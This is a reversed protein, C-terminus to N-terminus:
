RHRIQQAVLYVFCLICLLLFLAMGLHLGMRHYLGRVRDQLLNELINSVGQATVRLTNLMHVQALVLDQDVAIRRSEGVDVSLRAARRFSEVNELLEQIQEGQQTRLSPHAAVAEAWDSRVGQLVGDLQGELVLYQMKRSLPASDGELERVIRHQLSLLEPFRLVELSMTYYSDLDPDLILNSQNGLRTLLAKGRSLLEDGKRGPAQMAQQMAHALEASNMAVGHVEEQAQLRQEHQAWQLAPGEPTDILAADVMADALVRIYANGRIEKQAFDIALYKENVLIGSVFIVACLDLLYILLLKRGVSLKSLGRAFPNRSTVARM